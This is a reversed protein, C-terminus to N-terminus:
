LYFLFINLIQKFFFEKGFSNTTYSCHEELCNEEDSKKKLQNKEASGSLKVCKYMGVLPFTWRESFSIKVWSIKRMRHGSIIEM